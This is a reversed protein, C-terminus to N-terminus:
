RITWHEKWLIGWLSLKIKTFISNDILIAFSYDDLKKKRVIYKKSLNNIIKKLFLSEIESNIFKKNDINNKNEEKYIKIYEGIKYFFSYSYKENEKIAKKINEQIENEIKLYYKEILKDSIENKYKNEEELEQKAENRLIEIDYKM